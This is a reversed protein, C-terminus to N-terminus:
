TRTLYIVASTHYFQLDKNVVVFLLLIFVFEFIHKDKNYLM